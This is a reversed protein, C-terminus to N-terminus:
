LYKIYATKIEESFTHRFHHCYISAGQIKLSFFSSHGGGWELCIAITYVHHMDVYNMSIITKAYNIQQMPHLSCFSYKHWLM